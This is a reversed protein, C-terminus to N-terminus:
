ACLNTGSTAAQNGEIPIIQKKQGIHSLYFLAIFYRQSDFSIPPKIM